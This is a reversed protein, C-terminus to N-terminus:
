VTDSPLCVRQDGRLGCVALPGPAEEWEESRYSRSHPALVGDASRMFIGYVAGPDLLGLVIAGDPVDQVEGLSPWPVFIPRPGPPPPPLALKLILANTHPRGAAGGLKLHITNM